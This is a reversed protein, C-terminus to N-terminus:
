PKRVLAVVVGAVVAVFGALGVALFTGANSQGANPGADEDPVDGPDSQDPAGSPTPTPTSTESGPVPMAYVKSKKGESGVLLSQGDLSVTISEAQPQRPIKATAVSKYTDADIVRVSDYSLLAIQKDGPLFTGDTIVAPASGVRKLDNVGDRSPKKPAAYIGGKDAKTVIFLRGKGNVLLTEADHSGNPYRFDYARYDVTLGNARPHNFFYVRVFDRKEDNDGIDGLYLRDDHFAVAEVDEPQALYNLSGRVKGNPQVGYAAGSAGSDNVTWYLGAVTDRALGSSEVVREDKITFAVTAKAAAISPFLGCLALAVVIAGSSQLARRVSM